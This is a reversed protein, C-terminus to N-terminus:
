SMLMGELLRRSILIYRSFWSWLTGFQFTRQLQWQVCVETEEHLQAGVM